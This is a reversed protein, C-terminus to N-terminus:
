FLISYKVPQGLPVILEMKNGSRRVITKGALAPDVRLHYAHDGILFMGKSVEEIVADKALQLYINQAPSDISIERTIGQGTALATIRDLAMVGFARYRFAPKGQPDLRYGKPQFASGATDTPWPAQASSLRAIALQPNGFIQVAGTPRASGDGRSNWMPTADLYGGRWAQIIMGTDTDYTYHVQETSGVSVAHIVRINDPLDMFSRFLPHTSAEVIIPYVPNGRPAPLEAPPRENFTAIKINRFAVSGHDGQIRLPGRPKEPTLGGRTPGGLEVNEHILVGNLVVRLMKAPQTKNGAADFRPAAFSVELHQWLGPARSANQRPAHGDYGKKGDPRSEDWREYIGGNKGASTTSAGWTDELQIEYRGQFYIGSNSGAAMLFDLELDIDGYDLKSYLDSGHIKDDSFNVLVNSGESVKFSNKKELDAVVGGAMRWSKGPNEFSSLDNLTSSSQAPAPCSIVVLVIVSLTKWAAVYLPHSGHIRIASM